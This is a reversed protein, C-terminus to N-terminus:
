NTALEIFDKKYMHVIMRTVAFYIIKTLFLAFLRAGDSDTFIVTDRIGLVMSMCMTVSVNILIVLSFLMVTTLVQNIVRGNTFFVAYLIYLLLITLSLMGEFQYFHNLLTVYGTAAMMFLIDIIKGKNEAYRHGFIATIASVIIYSEFATATLEIVNWFISM